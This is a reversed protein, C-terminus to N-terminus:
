LFNQLSHADISLRKLLPAVLAVPFRIGGRGKGIEIGDETGHFDSGGTVILDLREGLRRLFEMEHPMAMNNFVEIGELGIKTLETIIAELEDLNSTVSTPHALVSVGGMREIESLANEMPWYLKPVNCQVLYRRFADEVSDAYGRDILAMAIHPRGITELAYALVSQMEIEDLNQEKLKENVRALIKVNREERRKRFKDLERSFERDAHRIGYGLLHIDSWNKFRVSLEVAPIVLIGAKEGATIAEPVGSVSDHDAIAIVSLGTASAIELLQHPSFRGDSYSSHIHLDIFGTKDRKM